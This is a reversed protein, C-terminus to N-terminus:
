HHPYGPPRPHDATEESDLGYDEDLTRKDQQDRPAYDRPPELHEPEQDQEITLGSADEAFAKLMPAQGSSLREAGMALHNHVDRYSTTLQGLLQATKSFHETVEQQYERQQGRLETLQRELERKSRSGKQQLWQGLLLGAGAGILLGAIGILWLLGGNYSM